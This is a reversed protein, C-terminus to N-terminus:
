TGIVVDFGFTFSSSPGSTQFDFGPPDDGTVVTTGSIASQNAGNGTIDTVATSVSEQNFPWLSVPSSAVWDSLSTTLGELDLDALVAEWVGMVALQANLFENNGTFNGVRVATIPGNTADGFDGYNTHTWTDTTYSYNHGRVLAVGAPKTMALLRWGDTATYTETSTFGAQTSFYVLGDSFPNLAVVNAATANDMKLLGGAHVTIPKWICAVTIPGGDLNALGGVSFDIFNSSAETFRRVAM